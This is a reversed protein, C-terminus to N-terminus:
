YGDYKCMLFYIMKFGFFFINQLLPIDKDKDRYKNLILIKVIVALVCSFNLEFKLHLKFKVPNAM